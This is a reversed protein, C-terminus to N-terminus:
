RSATPTPTTADSRSCAIVQVQTDANTCPAVDDGAVPPTNTDNTALIRITVNGQTVHGDTDTILYNIQHDTDIQAADNSPTYTFGTPLTGTLAGDNSPESVAVVTLTQNQPDSDNAM